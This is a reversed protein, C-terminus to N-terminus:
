RDPIADAQIGQKFLDLDDETGIGDLKDHEKDKNRELKRQEHQKDNWKADQEM